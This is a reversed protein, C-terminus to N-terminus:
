IQAIDRAAFDNVEFFSRIEKITASLVTPQKKVALRLRAVTLKTALSTFNPTRDGTLLRQWCPDTAPPVAM